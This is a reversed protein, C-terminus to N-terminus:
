NPALTNGTRTIKIARGMLDYETHTVRGEPDKQWSVRGLQDYKWRKVNGLADVMRVLNGAVDYEFQATNGRGDIHKVLHGSEDYIYRSSIFIKEGDGVVEEVLNGKEDFRRVTVKGSPEKTISERDKSIYTTVNGLPDIVRKTNTTDDYEYKRTAGRKDTSSVLRLKNDYSKSSINGYPDQIQTIVGFASLSYAWKHGQSNTLVTRTEDLYKLQYLEGNRTYSKVKGSEMYTLETQPNGRKDIIAQLFGNAGYQYQMAHNLIDVVRILRKTADYHYKVRRGSYDELSEIQGNHNYTFRVLYESGNHIETLRHTVKDYQFRLPKLNRREIKVLRGSLDFFSRRKGWETLIYTGDDSRTLKLRNGLPSVFGSEEHRFIVIRGDAREIATAPKGHYDVPYLQMQYGLKWGHGFVGERNPLSRYIRRIVLGISSISMSSISLDVEAHVFSGDVMCVRTKPYTTSSYLITDEISANLAQSNFEAKRGLFSEAKQEVKRIIEEGASVHLALCIFVLSLFLAYVFRSLM